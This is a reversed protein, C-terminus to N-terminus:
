ANVPASASTTDGFEQLDLRKLEEDLSFNLDLEAFKKTRDKDPTLHVYNRNNIGTCHGENLPGQDIKRVKGGYHTQWYRIAVGFEYYYNSRRKQEAPDKCNPHLHFNRWWSAGTEFQSRSAERTTCCILEWYRKRKPHFLKDRLGLEEDVAAMEGQELEEFMKALKRLLPMRVLLDSHWFALRETYLFAWELAFHPRMEAFRFNKNFDILVAGPILPPPGVRPDFGIVPTWGVSAVMKQQVVCWRDSINWCLWPLKVGDLQAKWGEAEKFLVDLPTNWVLWDGRGPSNGAM